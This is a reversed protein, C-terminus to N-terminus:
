SRVRWRQVISAVPQQLLISLVVPIAALPPLFQAAIVLGLSVNRLGSLFILDHRSAQQGEGATGPAIYVYLKELLWGAAYGLLVVGISFVPIILWLDEEMASLKPAVYASNLVLVILFSFKSVTGLTPLAAEIWRAGPATSAAWRGVGMGAATPLGVMLLLNLMMKTGQLAAHEGTLVLLTVPVTLPSLMTDIVIMSLAAAVNGRMVGIWVVASIGIPIATFLVYGAILDPDDLLWGGLLWVILPMLLHLVGYLWLLLVWQSRLVAFHQWKVGTGMVFTVCAFFLPVLGARDALLHSFLLGVLLASPTVYIMYRDLWRHLRKQSDHWKHWSHPGQKRVSGGMEIRM